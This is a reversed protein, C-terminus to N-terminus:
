SVKEMIEKLKDRPLEKIVLDMFKRIEVESDKQEIATKVDLPLWCKGCYKSDYGNKNKCRPCGRVNLVSDETIEKTEIGANKKLTDIADSSVLHGYRGLMDSTASLGVLKKVMAESMGMRLFNTIAIHRLQHVWVRKKIEARESAHRVIKWFAYTGMPKFRHSTANTLFLYSEPNDNYPHEELYKILLPVSKIVPVIRPDTKSVRVTVEAYDQKFEIDKVRLNIIENERMGTEATLFIMTKDRIKPSKDIMKKLEKETLLDQRSIFGNKGNLKVKIKTITEVIDERGLWQYFVLLAIQYNFVTADKKDSMKSFYNIVDEPTAKDYNKNIEKGFYKIAKLYNARTRIKLRKATNHRDYENLTRLQGKNLELTVLIRQVIREDKQETLNKEQM